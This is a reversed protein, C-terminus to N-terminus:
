RRVASSPGPQDQTNENDSSFDSSGPDDESDSSSSVALDDSESAVSNGSLRRVRSPGAVPDDGMNTFAAFWM